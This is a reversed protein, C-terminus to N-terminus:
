RRGRGRRAACARGRGAGLTGSPIIPRPRPASTFLSDSYGSQTHALAVAGAADPGGARGEEPGEERRRRGMM